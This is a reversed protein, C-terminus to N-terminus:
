AHRTHRAYGRSASHNQQGRREKRGPPVWQSRAIVYRVVLSGVRACALCCTMEEGDIEVCTADSAVVTRACITCTVTGARYVSKIMTGM